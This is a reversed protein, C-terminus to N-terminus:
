GLGRKGGECGVNSRDSFRTPKVKLFVDRAKGMECQRNRACEM